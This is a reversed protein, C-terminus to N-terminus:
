KPSPASKRRSILSMIIALFLFVDGSRTTGASRSAAACGGSGGEKKEEKKGADPREEPVEEDDSSPSADQTRPKPSADGEAGGDTTVGGEAEADGADVGADAVGADADSYGGGYTAVQEDIWKALLDVRALVETGGGAGSNVAVIIPPDTGAVVDPGGSDGPQIVEDSAFSYPFGISKGDKVKMPRSEFLASNSLKGDKIRGIKSIRAGQALPRRQLRPYTTLVIPKDLFVLGIDHQEPNVQRTTDVYDYVMGLGRARQQGAFPAKVRFGRSGVVCHGATLVVRPAIVSGSCAAMQGTTLEIDLLAAHEHRSALAGDVIALQSETTEEAASPACAVGPFLLLLLHLRKM